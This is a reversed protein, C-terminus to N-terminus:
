SHASAPFCFGLFTVNLSSTPFPTSPTPLSIARLLRSLSRLASYGTRTSMCVYSEAPHPLTNDRAWPQPIVQARSGLHGLSSGEAGCHCLRNAPRCRTYCGMLRNNNLQPQKETTTSMDGSAVWVVATMVFLVCLDTGHLPLANGATHHWCLLWLLEIVVLPALTPSTNHCSIKM